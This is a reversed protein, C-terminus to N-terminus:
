RTLEMMLGGVLCKEEKVVEKVWREDVKWRRGVVGNGDGSRGEVRRADDVRLQREM